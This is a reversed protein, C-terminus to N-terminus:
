WSIFCFISLLLLFQDSLKVDDSNNFSFWFIWLKPTRWRKCSSSVTGGRCYRTALKGAAAIVGLSELCACPVCGTLMACGCGGGLTYCSCFLPYYNRWLQSSFTFINKLGKISENAQCQTYPLRHVGNHPVHGDLAHLVHGLTGGGPAAGQIGCRWCPWSWRLLRRWDVFGYHSTM